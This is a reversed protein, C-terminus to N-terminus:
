ALVGNETPTRAYQAIKQCLANRSVPKTVYDDMGIEICREWDGAMAHATLAIIPIHSGTAKEQERICRAAEIGDIGPMQVDMFILDFHGRHWEALADTGTAALTVQHGMGELIRLVVKQNVLNDEAVLIRAPRHSAETNSGGDEHATNAQKELRRRTVAVEVTFHFTSGAAPVSEVWIEGGMLQIIRKSIALGLGSGGYKRTTSSDAQEFPRFLRRQTEAPIGIVTDHVKFHLKVSSGLDRDLSVTLIVQGRQTFKIGNALLNVLVQRLRTSDAILDMPVDPEVRFAWELGKQHASSALSKMIDRILEPLNFSTPDLIIKGAEIKSYDLIDNLIVLPSDASSKVISLFERQESTLETLLALEAMGLIGNMPTRIEHSMNALFESKAKNAAEAAEKAVALEQLYHHRATCDRVITVFGVPEGRANRKLSVSQEVSLGPKPEFEFAKGPQGTKYVNQYLERIKAGLESNFFEKYSVGMVEDKSRNFMRCYADNVVLYKGRLDVETYGDEMHDLVSWSREESNQLAKEIQEKKTLDNIFVAFRYTESFRESSVILEVPFERGDRHLVRAEIRKNLKPHDGTKLFDSLGQEFVGHFRQPVVIHFSHGLAEQHSLGFIGEAGPNWNTIRAKSDLEVFADFAADLIVRVNDDLHM